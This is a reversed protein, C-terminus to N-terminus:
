RPRNVPPPSRLQAIQVTVIDPRSSNGAADTVVLQFRHEGVPLGADVVVTPETTRVAQNIVFRAM